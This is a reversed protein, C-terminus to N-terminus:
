FRVTWPDLGKDTAVGASIFPRHRIDLLDCCLEHIARTVKNKGFLGM